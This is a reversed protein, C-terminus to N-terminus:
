QDNDVGRGTKQQLEDIQKAAESKSINEDMDEGAEDALTKLYSKQAGTMPEGGTKWNDPDKITNSIGSDGVQASGSNKLEEIKKSAAAKTMNEDLEEGAQQALTELYSRQAGTMPEEGTTWNNPDKIMNGENGKNRENEKNNQSVMKKTKRNIQL